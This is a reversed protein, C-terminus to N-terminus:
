LLSLRGNKMTYVVDAMDAAMKDHTVILIGKGKEAQSRLLEMVKKSNEEDLEGTPEDAFLYKLNGFLARAISVRKMEGGSLSGPYVDMLEDLGLFTVIEALTGEGSQRDHESFSKQLIINEYATLGSILSHSQPVIGIKEARLKDRSRLDKEFINMGDITVAGSEPKIMGALVNLLTSKGSGSRGMIATIKGEKVEIDVDDLATFSAGRRKYEKVINNSVVSM